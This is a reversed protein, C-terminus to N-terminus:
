FVPAVAVAGYVFAM